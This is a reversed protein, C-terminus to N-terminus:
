SPRATRDLLGELRDLDPGEGGGNRTTSDAAAVNAVWCADIPDLARHLAALFSGAHVDGAGTTDIARTVPAPVHHPPSPPLQLTAGRSGDRVIAQRSLGVPDATDLDSRAALGQHERANLTLWDTRALVTRLPGAPIDAVLPGPDFCALVGAPLAAFWAATEPASPYLLDYGSVYVADDDRVEIGALAAGDLESEVGPATAFTREGSDDVLVIVFGSDRESRPPLLVEIGERELAERVVAGFPGDGSLGAYAAPMGQRAAASLLNFGGGAAVMSRRAMADGGREPVKEVVLLVDALVSGILVIRGPAAM